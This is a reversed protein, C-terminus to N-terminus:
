SVEKERLIMAGDEFMDNMESHNWCVRKGGRCFGSNMNVGLGFAQEKQRGINFKLKGREKALEMKGDNLEKTQLVKRNGEISDGCIELPISQEWLKEGNKREKIVKDCDKYSSEPPFDPLWRPIHSGQPNPKHCGTSTNSDIPQVPNPSQSFSPCPIPKACPLDKSLNAFKMIERLAGSRLLGRKHMESATPFGQVSCVDHFANILDFLNSDTHNSANSFSAASKGTAELYKVAVNTLTELACLQTRKFGTSQCIKSIAVKAVGFSLDSPAEAVQVESDGHNKKKKKAKAKLNSKLTSKRTSQYQLPHM